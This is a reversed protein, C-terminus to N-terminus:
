GAASRERARVFRVPSDQVPASVDNELTFLKHMGVIHLTRLVLANAHQLVIPMERNRRRAAALEALAASSLYPVGSLDIVVGGDGIGRLAKRLSAAADGNTDPLLAITM